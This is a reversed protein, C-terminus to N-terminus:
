KSCYIAGNKMDIKQNNFRSSYLTVFCMTDPKWAKDKSNKKTIEIIISLIYIHITHLTVAAISISSKFVSHFHLSSVTAFVSFQYVFLGHSLIKRFGLVLNGESRCRLTWLFYNFHFFFYAKTKFFSIGAM